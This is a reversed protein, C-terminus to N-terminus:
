KSRLIDLLNKIERREPFERREWGCVSHDPGENNYDFDCLNDPIPGEDNIIIIIWFKIRNELTDIPDYKGQDQRTFNKNNLDREFQAIMDKRFSYGWQDEEDPDGFWPRIPVDNNEKYM